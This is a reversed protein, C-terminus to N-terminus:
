VHLMAVSGPVPAVVSVSVGLLLPEITNVFLQLISEPEGIGSGSVTGIVQWRRTFAVVLVPGLSRPPRSM